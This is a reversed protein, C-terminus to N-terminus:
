VSTIVARYDCHSSYLTNVFTTSIIEMPNNSCCYIMMLPTNCDSCSFCCTNVMTTLWGNLLLAIYSCLHKFLILFNYLYETLHSSLCYYLVIMPAATTYVVYPGGLLLRTATSVGTVMFFILSVFSILLNKTSNSEFFISETYQPRSFCIALCDPRNTTKLRTNILPYYM